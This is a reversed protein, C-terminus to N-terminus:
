TLLGRGKRSVKVVENYKALVDTATANRMTIIEALIEEDSIAQILRDRISKDVCCKVGCKEAQVKLQQYYSTM